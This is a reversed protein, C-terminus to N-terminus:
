KFLKKVSKFKSNKKKSIMSQFKNKSKKSQNIISNNLNSNQVLFKNYKNQIKDQITEISIKKKSEISNKNM